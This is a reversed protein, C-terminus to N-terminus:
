AGVGLVVLEDLEEGELCVFGLLESSFLIPPKILHHRLHRLLVLQELHININININIVAFM